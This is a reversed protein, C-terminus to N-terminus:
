CNAAATTTATAAIAAPCPGAYLACGVSGTADIRCRALDGGGRGSDTAAGGALHSPAGVGNGALVGVDVSASQYKAGDRM